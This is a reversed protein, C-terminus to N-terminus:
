GARYSWRRGGDARWGTQDVRYGLRAWPTGGPLRVALRRQRRDGALIRSPTWRGAPAFSLGGFAYAKDAFLTGRAEAAVEWFWWREV